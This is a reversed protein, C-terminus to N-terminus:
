RMYDVVHKVRRWYKLNARAYALGRRANELNLGDDLMFRYGARYCWLAHRVHALERRIQTEADQLALRITEDAYWTNLIAMGHFHIEDQPTNLLRDVPAYDRAYPLVQTKQM